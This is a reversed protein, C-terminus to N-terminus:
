RPRGESGAGRMAARLAEPVETADGQREQRWREALQLIEALRQVEAADAALRLTRGAAVLVSGHLRPACPAGDLTVEGRRVTLVRRELASDVTITTWGPASRAVSADGSPEAVWVWVLASLVGCVFLGGVLWPAGEGGVPDLLATLQRPSLGRAAAVGGGVVVLATFASAVAVAALRAARAMAARVGADPRAPAPFVRLHITVEDHDTPHVDL